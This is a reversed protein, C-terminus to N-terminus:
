PHMFIFLARRPSNPERFYQGELHVQGSAGAFGYTETFKADDAFSVIKPIRVWQATGAM